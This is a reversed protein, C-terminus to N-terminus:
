AAEERGIAVDGAELVPRLIAVGEVWMALMLALSLGIIGHALAGIVAACVELIGFLTMVVAVNALREEVRRVTVFHFRFVNPLYALM